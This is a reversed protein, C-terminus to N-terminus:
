YITEESKNAKKRLPGNKPVENIAEEAKSKKNLFGFFSKKPKPTEGIEENTDKPADQPIYVPTTKSWDIQSTNTGKIDAEAFENWEKQVSYQNAGMKVGQKIEYRRMEAADIMGDKGVFAQKQEASLEKKVFTGHGLPTKAEQKNPALMIPAPPAIPAIPPKPAIYPATPPAQPPIFVPLPQKPPEFSVMANKNPPAIQMPPAQNLPAKQINAIKIPAENNLPKVGYNGQYIQTNTQKQAASMYNQSQQQPTNSFYGLSTTKNRSPLGTIAGEMPSLNASNSFQCQGTTANTKGIKIPSFSWAACLMDNSCAMACEQANTTFVVGIKPTQMQSQALANFAINPLIGISAIIILKNAFSKKM